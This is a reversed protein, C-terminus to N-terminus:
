TEGRSVFEFPEAANLQEDVEKLKAFLSDLYSQWSVQQGDINYNPKPNRTVLEIQTLLNARIQLLTSQTPDNPNIDLPTLEDGSAAASGNFTTM